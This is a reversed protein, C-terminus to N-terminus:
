LRRNNNGVIIRRMPREVIYYAGCSVILTTCIYLTLALNDSLNAFYTVFVKQLIQHTMYIAFSIEGLFVFLRTSLIWSIVGRGSALIFLLALACPLLAPGFNIWLGVSQITADGMPLIVYGIAHSYGAIVVVLLIEILSADFFSRPVMHGYRRWLLCCCMGSVFEFIRSLPNISLLTVASIDNPGGAIPGETYAFVACMMLGALFAISLKLRWTKNLNIILIPFLMYFLMEVSITWSVSDFSLSYLEVPVWAHLLLLNAVAVTTQTADSELGKYLLVISVFCVFHLPWIRAFRARLFSMVERRGSLKPYVYTLIFGSLAFFLMVGNGLPFTSPTLGYSTGIHLYVIAASAFFRLGTLPSLKDNNIKM